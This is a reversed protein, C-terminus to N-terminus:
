HPSGIRIRQVRSWGSQRKGAFSRVRWFLRKEVKGRPEPAESIGVSEGVSELIFVNTKVRESLKVRRFTPDESIEFQYYDTLLTSEWTFMLDERAPVRRGDGPLKPEPAALEIRIPIRGTAVQRGDELDAVVRYSYDSEDVSRLALTFSPQELEEELMERGDPQYVWLRYSRAGEVPSWRLSVRIEHLQGAAAASGLRTNAAGGVAELAPLPRIVPKDPTAQAPEVPEKPTKAEPRSVTGTEPKEEGEEQRSESQEEPRIAFRGGRTWASAQGSSAINRAEWQYEGLPLKLSTGGPGAAVPAAGNLRIETRYGSPVPKWSFSVFRESGPAVRFVANESPTLMEPATLLEVKFTRWSSWEEVAAQGKRIFGLRWRYEGSGLAMRRSSEGPRIDVLNRAFAGGKSEVRLEASGAADGLWELRFEVEGVSRFGGFALEGMVLREGERPALPRVGAPRALPLEGDLLAVGKPDSALIKVSEAPAADPDVQVEFRRAEMSATSSPEVASSAIKFSKERAMVRLPVRTALSFRAGGKDIRLAPAKQIVAQIPRLWGGFAVSGGALDGKEAAQVRILSNPQIEATIGADLKLEAVGDDGTFITDGASVTEVLPLERWILAGDSRLRVGGQRRIVKGLPAVTPRGEILENWLHSDNVLALGLLGSSGLLFALVLDVLWERLHFRLQVRTFRGPAAIEAM